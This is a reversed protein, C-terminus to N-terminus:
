EGEDSMENLRDVETSVTAVVGAVRDRIGELETQAEPSLNAGAAGEGSLMYEISAALLRLQIEVAFLSESAVSVEGATPDRLAQSQLREESAAYAASLVAVQAELEGIRENLARVDVDDGRTEAAPVGAGDDATSEGAQLEDAAPVPEVPADPAGTDSPEIAAEDTGYQVGLSDVVSSASTREGWKDLREVLDPMVAMMLAGFLVAAALSLARPVRGAAGIAPAPRRARVSAYIERTDKAPDYMRLRLANSVVLLLSLASVVGVVIPDLLVGFRPYLFGMAVPVLIANFALALALNQRTNRATADSLRVALGIGDLGGRMLTVESSEM